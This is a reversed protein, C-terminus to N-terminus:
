GLVQRMIEPDELCQTKYKGLCWFFITRVYNDHVRTGNIFGDAAAGTNFKMAQSINPTQVDRTEGVSQLFLPKRPDRPNRVVFVYIYLPPSVQTM